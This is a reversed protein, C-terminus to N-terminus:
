LLPFVSPVTTSLNPTLCFFPFNPELSHSQGFALAENNIFSSRWGRSKPGRSHREEKQGEQGGLAFEAYKLSKIKEKLQTQLSLEGECTPIKFCQRPFNPQSINRSQSQACEQDGKVTM